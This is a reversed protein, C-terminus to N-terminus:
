MATSGAHPRYALGEPRICVRRRRMGLMGLGVLGLASPEPVVVGDFVDFMALADEFSMGGSTGKQWNAALIGLDAINVDSDYNFDGHFWFRDSAQWNAALIGLDAITVSGDLTADGGWTFRVVVDDGDMGVGLARGSETAAVSSQIGTGDWSGGARGSAVLASVAAADGNRVILENDALDVIAGGAADVTLTNVALSVGAGAGFNVRGGPGRDPVAGNVQLEAVSITGGDYNMVGTSWVQVANTVNLTGGSVTLTGDGGQPGVRVNQNVNVTGGNMSFQGVSGPQDGIILLGANITGGNMVLSGNGRTAIRVLRVGTGTANISTNDGMVVSGQSGANFGIEVAGNVTTISANDSLSVSGVSTPQFGAAFVLSSVAANGSMQLTADGWAGILIHNFGGTVQLSGGTMVLQGEGGELQGVRLGEALTVSGGDSIQLTGRGGDSAGLNIWRTAITGGNLELTGEGGDGIVIQNAGGITQISGGIVEVTGTSGPARGIRLQGDLSLAGSSSIELRGGAGLESGIDFVGATEATNLLITGHNDLIGPVLPQPKGLGPTWNADNDWTGSEVVWFTEVDATTPHAADVLIHKVDGMGRGAALNQGHATVFADHGFPNVFEGTFVAWGFDSYSGKLVGDEVRISPGVFDGVIFSASESFSLTFESDNMWLSTVLDGVGQYSNFTFTAIVEIGDDVGGDRNVLKEKNAARLNGTVLLDNPSGSGAQDYFLNVFLGAENNGVGDLGHLQDPVGDLNNRKYNVVGLQHRWDAFEGGAFQLLPNTQDVTVSINGTAWQILAGEPNWFDFGDRSSIAQLAYNGFGSVDTRFAGDVEVGNVGVITSPTFGSGVGFQNITLSGDDFDDDIIINQASATAGGIAVAAAASLVALRKSTKRNMVSEEQFLAGGAAM